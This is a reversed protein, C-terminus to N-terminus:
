VGQCTGPSGSYAGDGGFRVHEPPGAHQDVREVTVDLVATKAVTSDLPVWYLKAVFDPSGLTGTGLLNYLNGVLFDGARVDVVPVEGGRGDLVTHWRGTALLHGIDVCTRDSTGPAM